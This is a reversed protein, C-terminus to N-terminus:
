AGEPRFTISNGKTDNFTSFENIGKITRVAQFYDTQADSKGFNGSMSNTRFRTYPKGTIRSVANADGTGTTTRRSIRLKAFKFKPVTIVTDTAGAPIIQTFRGALLTRILTAEQQGTADQAAAPIQTEYYIDNKAATFPRVWSTAYETKVRDTAPKAVSRYLTRKQLPDLKRWDQLKNYLNQLEPGRNIDAYKAAM